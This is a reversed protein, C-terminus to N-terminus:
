FLVIVKQMRDLLGMFDLELEPVPAVSRGASRSSITDPFRADVKRVCRLLDLDSVFYVDGKVDHCIFSM